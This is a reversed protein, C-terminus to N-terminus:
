TFYHWGGQDAVRHTSDFGIRIESPRPWGASEFASRIEAAWSQCADALAPDLSVSPLALDLPVMFEPPFYWEPLDEDPRGSLLVWVVLHRPDLDVAGYSFVDDVTVGAAEQGRLGDRVAAVVRDSTRSPPM